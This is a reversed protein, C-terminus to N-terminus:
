FTLVRRENLERLREKIPVLARELARIGINARKLEDNIGNLSMRRFKRKHVSAGARGYRRHRKAIAREEYCLALAREIAQKDELLEQRSITPM